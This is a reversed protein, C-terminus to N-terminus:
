KSQISQIVIEIVAAQVDALAAGLRQLDADLKVQAQQAKATSEAMAAQARRLSQWNTETPKEVYDKSEREFSERDANQEKKAEEVKAAQEQVKLAADGLEQTASGIDPM